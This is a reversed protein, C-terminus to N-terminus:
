SEGLFQGADFRGISGLLQRIFTSDRVGTETVRRSLVVVRGDELGFREINAVTGDDTFTIALVERTIEEPALPGFHRFQSQVYYFGSGDLVGGATPPGVKSVVTERTDTGVVIQSLDEPLPVFGHYRIQQTCAAVTCIALTLALKRWMGGRTGKGM